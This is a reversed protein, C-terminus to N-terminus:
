TRHLGTATLWTEAILMHGISTPHVGDSTWAIDPRAARARVFAGHLAVVAVAAFEEALRHVTAVYPQLLENAAPCSPLWLVSPECLVLATRPLAQRTRALIDRYGTVFTAHDTGTVGPQLGHWVDNLGIYVSVIDPELALVEDQWVAQLDTIKFGSVGRNTVVPATAPQRAALIDRILRVYGFGIREPDVHRGADTVSDGIFLLDTATSVALTV